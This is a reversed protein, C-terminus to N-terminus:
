KGAPQIFNVLKGRQNAADKWDGVSRWYIESYTATPYKFLMRFHALQQVLHLCAPNHGVIMVRKYQSDLGLMYEIYGDSKSALDYLKQDYVVPINEMGLAKVTAVTRVSPSAYIIEPPAIKESKLYHSIHRIDDEGAKSLSRDIDKLSPDDWSSKAHRLVILTRSTRGTGGLLPLHHHGILNVPVEDTPSSQTSLVTGVGALLFTMLLAGIFVNFKPASATEQQIQMEFSEQQYEASQRRANQQTHTRDDDSSEEQAEGEMEQRISGYRMKDHSYRSSVPNLRQECHIEEMKALPAHLSPETRNHRLRSSGSRSLPNCPPRSVVEKKEADSKALGCFRTAERMAGVCGQGVEVEVWM